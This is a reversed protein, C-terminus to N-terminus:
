PMVGAPEVGEVARRGLLWALRDCEPLAMVASPLGTLGMPRRSDWLMSFYRLDLRVYEISWDRYTRGFAPGLDAHHVEVERWRRQVLDDVGLDTPWEDFSEWCRELSAAAARLDAVLEVAPRSAGAEIDGARQEAGGPYQAVQQGARAGELLRVHSDANRALHTVVHGISWNGLLSPARAVDDTLADLAAELRRHAATAGEIVRAFQHPPM